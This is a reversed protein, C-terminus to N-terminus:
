NIFGISELFDVMAQNTKQHFEPNRPNFFGHTQDEYLILDCRSGVKEMVKQYYKGTEVPILRDNTGLLFLTPPAGPKLNHLPSFDQYYNGVREFGYGGPGNDIVPNFLLLADPVSGVTLDDTLENFGTIFATAAALHGGASGGGAAIRTPDVGFNAAESRVYRMASKADMLSEVPSTGHSNRTRYEVLFCVLGKSALLEAQPKFHDINGGNWGGGFFFVVGPRAQDKSHQSPYHVKIELSATDVQKYTILEINQAHIGSLLVGSLLIILSVKSMGSFYTIWHCNSYVHVLPKQPCEISAM